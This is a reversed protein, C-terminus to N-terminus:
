EYYLCEIPNLQAARWAPYFGFFIGVGAAFSMSLVVSQVSVVPNFDQVFHGIAAAAGIGAAMGIIGGVASMIMAELLFQQLIDRDRAGIAKRIGIERTRETVTVLMINMIGIGGVLLSIFAIGGLLFTFQKTVTSMTEIMDAQNRVEFDDDNPNTIRHRKRLEAAIEEEVKKMGKSDKAQIEIGTLYDLGFMINMATTYPVIAQNDASFFSDGGKSKLMGIYEFNLGNVKIHGGLDNKTLELSEAAESGLVIVRANRDTETDTFFRGYDMQYNNSSLYTIATGVVRTRANKNLFKLQANGNAVPAVTNVGDLALLAQADAVTLTQVDDGRVGGRDRGAGPRVSLRNTGMTQIRSLVDKQAGTGIALMTIVAGVGIIIGLMALFSRLKNAILSKLASKVITLFLM